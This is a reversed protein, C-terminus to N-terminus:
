AAMKYTNYINQIYKTHIKSYKPLNAINKVRWPNVMSISGESTSAGPAAAPGIAVATDNVLSASLAVFM